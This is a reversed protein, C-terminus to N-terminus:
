RGDYKKNLEALVTSEKMEPLKRYNNEELIPDFQCVSKFKCYTCANKDKRIYPNLQVNGTTIDIGAQIMLQHIHQQLSSFVQRDAIKSHHTFGGNKKLGAPIIKSSGSDLSQDMMKVVEEDSLLMGYMKYKKFLEDAIQDDFLKGEKSVMANHVHFYLIGAPLAKKGLWQESQSLVVDLYALMQLALGYYVDTLNLKTESSKYDIIRLYLGQENEAIDVRDIRGRLMLEFGNPLEISVPALKEGNGFGLEMGVPTFGSQRAQESLVFTARSIIDQLKQQIYKYRNSSHLIENQLVPALHKVAKQAYQSTETKSLDSFHRGEEHVWETITKLAEHFLQGIDPADLKYIKREELNLSYQVFHQYSCRYFMELRSVSANIEKPYLKEVTQESLAVPKNEYYLSQLVSYTSSYKQEHKIYWNLVHWWIEKMPYGRKVRALQATLAATTKYPTTIFRDAEVLEDPDQLLIVDKCHPFMDQMRQILQSPMRANGEEDSLPYSIWLRDQPSTFALYMYFWDDLLRRKSSDALQLGHGALLEREQENIMGDPAPKLPWIGDNVGLLFACKIGSIRSHDITGVIVQDVTPPVHSFQLSELGADLITRFSSLSLQENGAIEVMEDLLQILADWVQVQERSQEILGREDFRQQLHELRKPVNLRELLYYLEEGQKLVSHARRINEDFSKLAEVVQDRYANIRVQVAQEADTQTPQEFGRFRQFVWPESNTWRERTRIGYELVYNELEDIAENTLPYDSNSSPIFGTKLVRFVADYQWNNEVMDFLSRIFEILPHNLMTQKEDMFVPINFDEFITTILDHYNDAQRIFIAMDKYRYQEDRVLRVIEQAVGEVEARFHVAEAIHIPAKEKYAKIPRKDFFMELHSFFPRDLFRGNEKSLQVTKEVHINNAEAISRIERYTQMPQYFLDLETQQKGEREPDMTLAVTVSKCTQLLKEIVYLEQPTFRHFGDLYIHANQLFPTESIKDALLQLQDESDIYKDQLAIALKEYIYLLDELKNALAQEGSEKHVFRHFENLQDQLMEPTIRYRKFEIILRELDELFGHKDKSKQFVSFSSQKEEMIKKLMMQMGVSSIFQKVGGGTEQMVRWALRSFSVVQARISGRIAEDKFLTYEQQFTMQDPVIYFIPAGHPDAKLNSKIENLSYTSISSGARGIIFRLGM